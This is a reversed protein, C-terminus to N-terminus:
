HGVVPHADDENECSLEYSMWFGETPELEVRVSDGVEFSQRDDLVRPFVGNFIMNVLPLRVSQGFISIEGQVSQEFKIVSPGSQERLQQINEGNDTANLTFSANTALCERGM